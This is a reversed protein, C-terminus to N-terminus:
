ISVFIESPVCLFENEYDTIKIIIMIIKMTIMKM